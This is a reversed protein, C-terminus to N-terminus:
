GVRSRLYGISAIAPRPDDAAFTARVKGRRVYPALFGRVGLERRRAMQASVYVDKGLYIWTAAGDLAGLAKPRRGALDDYALRGIDFRKTMAIGAWVPLRTNVELLKFQGDRGDHAFEVHAFGRYGAAALIRHGLDGVEQQPRVEFVASTGFHLPGQRVKRGVVDALPRGDVGIYTFLSFVREHSGPILEQVITDFGHEHARRWAAVADETTDAVVVKHGFALAFGQGEAPKVLFPPTLAAGRIEEESGAFVTRPAPVGAAAALEPLLEKRRLRRVAEPDDPLPVDALAQVEDWHRLVLEVHEDRELFLVPRSGDRVAALAEDDSCAATRRSLYRSSLGFDSGNLVVGEVPIGSRGLSRALALGAHLLGMVVARRM